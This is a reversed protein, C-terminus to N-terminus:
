EVLMIKFLYVFIIKNNKQLYIYLKSKIKKSPTNRPVLYKILITKLINWVGNLFNDDLKYTAIINQQSEGDFEAGSKVQGTYTFCNSPYQMMTIITINSIFYKNSFKGSKSIPGTYEEIDKHNRLFQIINDIANKVPFCIDSLVVGNIITISRHGVPAFTSPKDEKKTEIPSHFIIGMLCPWQTKFDYIM